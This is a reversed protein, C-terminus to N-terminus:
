GISHQLIRINGYLNTYPTSSPIEYRVEVGAGGYGAGNYVMSLTGKQTGRQRDAVIFENIDVIGSGAILDMRLDIEMYVKRSMLTSGSGSEWIDIWVSYSQYNGLAADFKKMMSSLNTGSMGSIQPSLDPFFTVTQFSSGTVTGFYDATSRLVQGAATPFVETVTGASNTIVGGPNVPETGGGGGASQATTLIMNASSATGTYTVTPTVSDADHLVYWGTGVEIGSVQSNELKIYAYQGAGLDNLKIVGTSGTLDSDRITCALAGFTTIGDAVGNFCNVGFELYYPATNGLTFLNDIVHLGRVDTFKIAQQGGWTVDNAINLNRFTIHECLGTIEIGGYMMSTKGAGEFTIYNQDALTWGGAHDYGMINVRSGFDIWGSTFDAVTQYPAEISKGHNAHSGKDSSIWYEGSYQLAAEALNPDRLKEYYSETPSKYIFYFVEGAVLNLVTNYTTGGGGGSATSLNDLARRNIVRTNQLTLESDALCIVLLETNEVLGTTDFDMDGNVEIIDSSSVLTKGLIYKGLMQSWVSDTGDYFLVDGLAVPIRETVDSTVSDKTLISGTTTYMSELLAEPANVLDWNTGNCYFLKKSDTAFALSGELLPNAAPINAELGRAIKIIAM